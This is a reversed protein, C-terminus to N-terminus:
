CQSANNPAVNGSMGTALAAEVDGNTSSHPIGAYTLGFQQHRSANEFCWDGEIGNLKLRCLEDARSLGDIRVEGQPHLQGSTRNARARRHDYPAPFGSQDFERLHWQSRPAGPPKRYLSESVHPTALPMPADGQSADVSVDPMMGSILLLEGLGDPLVHMHSAGSPTIGAVQPPQPPNDPPQPPTLWPPLPPGMGDDPAGLDFPCSPPPIMDDDQGGPGDDNFGNWPPASSMDGDVPQYPNPTPPSAYPQSLLGGPARFADDKGTQREVLAGIRLIRSINLHLCPQNVM